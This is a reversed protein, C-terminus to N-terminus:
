GKERCCALSINKLTLLLGVLSKLILNVSEEVATLTDISVELGLVQPRVMEGKISCKYQVQSM